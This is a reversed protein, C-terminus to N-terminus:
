QLRGGKQLVRAMERACDPRAQPPVHHLALNSLVCHLHGTPCPIWTATGEAIHVNPLEKFREACVEVMRGSPDVGYVEADPFREAILQVLRGTGCGLDLVRKRGADGMRELMMRMADAYMPDKAFISDYDGAYEDWFGL